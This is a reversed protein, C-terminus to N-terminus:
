TTLFVKFSWKTDTSSVVLSKAFGDEDSANLTINGSTALDPNGMLNLSEAGIWNQPKVSETVNKQTPVTPITWLGILGMNHPSDDLGFYEIRVKKTNNPLPIIKWTEVGLTGGTFNYEGILTNQSKINSNSSNTCGSISVVFCIVLFISVLLKKGLFLVGM